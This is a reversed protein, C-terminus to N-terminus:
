VRRRRPRQRKGTRRGIEVAGILDSLGQGNSDCFLADVTLAASFAAVAPSAVNVNGSADVLTQDPAPVSYTVTKGANTVYTFEMKQEVRVDPDPTAPTTQKKGYSLSWSTIVGGTIPELVAILADVATTAITGETGWPVNLNMKGVAGREDEIVITLDAAPLAVWAM